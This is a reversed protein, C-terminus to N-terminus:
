SVQFFSELIITARVKSPCDPLEQIVPQYVDFAIALLALRELRQCVEGDEGGYV